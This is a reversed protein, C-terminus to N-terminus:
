KLENSKKAGAQVLLDVVEPIAPKPYRSAEYRTALDLPTKGSLSKSNPDAGYDLLLKVVEFRQGGMPDVHFTAGCLPSCLNPNAGKRLLFKVVDVKGRFAANYLLTTKDFLTNVDGGWAVVRQVTELECKLLLEDRYEKLRYKEEENEWKQPDKEKMLDIIKTDTLHRMAYSFVSIAHSERFWEGNSSEHYIDANKSLLSTVIDLVVTMNSKIHQRYTLLVRQLATMNIDNVINVDIDKHACLMKTIGTKHKYKHFCTLDNDVAIHLPTDGINNKQNVDIDKHQLLADIVPRADPTNQYGEKVASVAKSSASCAAHLAFSNKVDIGDVALLMNVLPLSLYSCAMALVNNIEQGGCLAKNPDAGHDLLLKTMKPESKESDIGVTAFLYHVGEVGPYNVDVNYVSLFTEVLEALKDYIDGDESALLLLLNGFATTGGFDEYEVDIGQDLINQGHKALTEVSMDMFIETNEIIKEKEVKNENKKMKKRTNSPGDVADMSRKLSKPEKKPESDSQSDNPSTPIVDGQVSPTSGIHTSMNSNPQTSM